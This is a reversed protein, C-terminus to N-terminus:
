NKMYILRSLDMKIQSVLHSGAAIEFKAFTQFGYQCNKILHIRGVNYALIIRLFKVKLTADNLILNKLSYQIKKVKPLILLVIIASICAFNHFAIGIEM